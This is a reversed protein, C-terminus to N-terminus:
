LSVQVVGAATVVAQIVKNTLSNRVDVSEGEVGDALAEGSTRVEIGGIKALITVKGGRRVLLAAKFNRFGIIEGPTLSQLTLKGAAQKLDTLPTDNMASLDRKEVQVDAAALPVGKPIARAAVLVPEYRKIRANVYLSWPHAGNCRVQALTSGALRSGPALTVALRNECAPLRLRPDIGGVEVEVSGRPQAAQQLIFERVQARISELDQLEGASARSASLCFPSAAAVALLLTL